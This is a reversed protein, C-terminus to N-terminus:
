TLLKTAMKQSMWGGVWGRHLLQDNKYQVHAFKTMKQVWGNRHKRIIHIIGLYPADLLNMFTDIM